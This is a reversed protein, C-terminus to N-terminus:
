ENNEEAKVRAGPPRGELQTRSESFIAKPTQFLRKSVSSQAVKEFGRKDRQYRCRCFCVADRTRVKKTGEATVETRPWMSKYVQPPSTSNWPVKRLASATYTVTQLKKPIAGPGQLCIRLREYLSCLWHGFEGLLLDRVFQLRSGTDWLISPADLELPLYTESHQQHSLFAISWLIERLVLASCSFLHLQQPTGPIPVQQASKAQFLVGQKFSMFDTAIRLVM